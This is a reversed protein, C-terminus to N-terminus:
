IYKNTRQIKKIAPRLTEMKDIPLSWDLTEQKRGPLRLTLDTRLTVQEHKIPAFTLYVCFTSSLVHPKTVKRWKLICGGVTKNLDANKYLSRSITESYSKSNNRTKNQKSKERQLYTGVVYIRLYHLYSKFYKIITFM